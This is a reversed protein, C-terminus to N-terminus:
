HTFVQISACMNRLFSYFLSPDDYWYWVTLLPFKEIFGEGSLFFFTGAPQMILGTHLRFGSWSTQDKLDHERQQKKAGTLTSVTPPCVFNAPHKWGKWEVSGMNYCCSLRNWQTKEHSWSRSMWPLVTQFTNDSSYFCGSASPFTLM